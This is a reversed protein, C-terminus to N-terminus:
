KKPTPVEETIVPKAAKAAERAAKQDARYKRITERANKISDRPTTEQRGDLEYQTKIEPDDDVDFDDAEEFSEFGQDSAALSLQQKVMRRITEALPVPRRWRVPLAVPTDDLIEHRGSM